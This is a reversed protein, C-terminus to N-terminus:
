AIMNHKDNTNCGMRWDPRMVKTGGKGRAFSLAVLDTLTALATFTLALLPPIFHFSIFHFAVDKNCTEHTPPLHETRRKESMPPVPVWIGSVLCRSLCADKEWM